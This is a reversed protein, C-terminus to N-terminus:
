RKRVAVAVAVGDHLVHGRPGVAPDTEARAREVAGDPAHEFLAEDLLQAVAGVRRAAVLPAPVVRQGPEASLCRECLGPPEAVHQTLRACCSENWSLQLAM